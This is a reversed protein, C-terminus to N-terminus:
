STPLRNEIAELAPVLTKKGLREALDKSLRKAPDPEEWRGLAEKTLRRWEALDALVDSAELQEVSASAAVYDSIRRM